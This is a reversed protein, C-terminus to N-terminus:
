AVTKDAQLPYLYCEAYCLPPTPSHLGPPFRRFLMRRMLLIELINKRFLSYNSPM